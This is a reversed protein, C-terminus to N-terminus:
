HSCMLFVRCYACNNKVPGRNFGDVMAIRDGAPTTRSRMLRRWEWHDFFLVYGDLRCFSYKLAKCHKGIIDLTSTFNSVVV